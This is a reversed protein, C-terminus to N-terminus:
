LAAHTEFTPGWYPLLSSVCQFVPQTSCALCPRATAYATYAFALPATRGSPATWGPPATRGSPALFPSLSFIYSGGNKFTTPITFIILGCSNLQM